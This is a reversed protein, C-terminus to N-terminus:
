LAFPLLLLLGIRMRNASGEYTSLSLTSNVTSGSSLTTISYQPLSLGTAISTHSKLSSAKTAYSFIDEKSPNNDNSIVGTYSSRGGASTSKKAADFSTTEFNQATPQEPEASKSLSTIKESPYNLDSSYTYSNRDFTKTIVTLITNSSPTEAALPRSRSPEVIELSSPSNTEVSSATYTSPIKPTGYSIHNTNGNSTTKPKSSSTEEVGGKSSSLYEEMTKYNETITKTIDSVTNRSKSPPISNFSSLTFSVEPSLRTSEGTGSVSSTSKELHRNTYSTVVNTYIVTSTSDIFIHRTTSELSQTVESNGWTSSKIDSTKITEHSSTTSSGSKSTSNRYYGFTPTEVFVLTTPTAVGDSGTIDMQGTSTSTMIGSWPITSTSLPIEVYVISTSLLIGDSGTSELLGTSTSTFSGTWPITTTHLNIETSSEGTLPTEVIVLTTPTSNGDTGTIDVLATTTSTITGTWPVTTTSLPTEVIVLTTPTVSGDTGTIDVLGTTTSTITGTWPVTTTSLPTEVIVLTTPTTSGDTGTIDVSGTTTSTITGTWPVTTTSLPTEVIVLTTPTVSGDTGTIDVLGTTTSTITGTWPVTTTSLPTEVIVLTTPTTNGDTGTIDVLGTTTSTITGTWPVTTTSLPTEVIVLTTPTTSGDTGTIDVLGTTTSTITGTWPVTTTSLPTEVIVLTTPTVSGDTGTIDVLGTTTSTITGTWPVTTTSLPTEVIVLTTPTTNGDTGTIDVLGTTTSTITGTWPVTTTSLPTEVIVLTTPTTNGDTGTIDVLGTTTSTITGTWPVTTTSLPTEVIVLTTPTVSGDTGTIDVLGTTTSTITGTWPVTTTSLPTEVIVLTTPTTNGDTGTIDVLGTTTSTGNGTWPVTTTSLPTEVIVLTTPTTSGDTGTIDVLGTTTSTITGTWPVTTTSLPTEVIVLTTPTTSGDTGTIGVLGTTTSTVTGTWPVTTTSLPTEVIVVTTTVVKGDSNTVDIVGTTTSTKTGTWPETTTSLPTGVYYITETTQLGDSGTFTFISTSFTSTATGTWPKTTTSQTNHIVSAAGGASGTTIVWDGTTSFGKTTGQCTKTGKVSELIELSYYSTSPLAQYANLFLHYNAPIGSASISVTNGSCSLSYSDSPFVEPDKPFGWDNFTSAMFIGVDDCSTLTGVGSKSGSFIVRFNESFSSACSPGLLYYLYSTDSGPVAEGYAGFNSSTAGTAYFEDSTLSVTASMENWTLTNTGISLANAGAEEGISMGPTLRVGITMLGTVDVSSDETITCTLSSPVGTSFGNFVLCEAYNTKGDTIYVWNGESTTINTYVKRVLPMSLEFYDGIQPNASLPVTFSLQANFVDRNATGKNLISFGTFVDSILKGSVTRIALLYLCLLSSIPM